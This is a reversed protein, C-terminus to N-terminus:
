RQRNLSSSLWTMQTILKLLLQSSRSLNEKKRLRPKKRKKSKIKKMKNRKMEKMKIMMMIKKKM